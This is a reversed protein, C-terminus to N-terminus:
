FGYNKQSQDTQKRDEKGPTSVSPESKTKKDVSYKSTDQLGGTKYEEEGTEDAEPNFFSGEGYEKAQLNRSGSIEEDDEYFDPSQRVPRVSERDRSGPGKSPLRPDTNEM